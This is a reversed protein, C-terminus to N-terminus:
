AADDGRQERTTRNHRRRPMPPCGLSGTRTGSNPPSRPSWSRSDPRPRRDHGQVRSPRSQPSPRPPRGPPRAGRAPSGDRGAQRPPPRRLPRGLRPLRPVALAMGARHGRGARGGPRHVVSLLGDETGPRAATSRWGLDGGPWRGCRPRPDRIRASAPTERRPPARGRPAPERV